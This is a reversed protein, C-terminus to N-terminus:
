WGTAGDLQERLIDAHGAHRATEEIMHVLIWRLSVRDEPDGSRSGVSLDDLSGAEAVIRNSEEWADRYAALLGRLTDDTEVRWDPDPDDETWAFAIDRGAFVAHFWWREVDALHKVIGGLSTGSEVGSFRIEDEGLGDVKRVVADRQSDLFGVLVEREAAAARIAWPDTTM